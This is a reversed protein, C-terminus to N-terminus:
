IIDELNIDEYAQETAEVGNAGGLAKLLSGIKKKKEDDDTPQGSIMQGISKVNKVISAVSNVSSALNSIYTAAAYSKNMTPIGKTLGSSAVSGSPTSAGSNASLVPNLGAAMLDQVARQHSTNSMYEQFERNKAAEASNYMQNQKMLYLASNLQNQFNAANAQNAYGANNFWDLWHRERGYYTFPTGDDLNFNINTKDQYGM